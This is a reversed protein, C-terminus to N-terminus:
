FSIQALRIDTKQSVIRYCCFNFQSFHSPIDLTLYINKFLPKGLSFAYICRRSAM